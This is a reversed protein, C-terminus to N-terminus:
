WGGLIISAPIWRPQFISLDGPLIRLWFSQSSVIWFCVIVMFRLSSCLLEGSNELGGATQGIAGGWYLRKNQWYRQRSEQHSLQYLIQRCHPFGPNSGQTPFIGQLLAHCNVGTNKGPSEGHVSSGPLNCDVPDCLTLFSWAVLCLVSM